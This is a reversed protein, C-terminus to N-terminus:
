GAPHRRRFWAPLGSALVALAGLAMVAWGPGYSSESVVLDRIAGLPDDGIGEGLRMRAREIETSALVYAYALLGLAGLAPWVAQRTREIWALLAAAVALALMVIGALWWEGEMLTFSGRLPVRVIPLFVGGAMLAAGILAIVRALTAPM